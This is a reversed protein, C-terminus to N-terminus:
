MAGMMSLFVVSAISGGDVDYYTEIESGGIASGLKWEQEDIIIGLSNFIRWIANVAFEVMRGTFGYKKSRIGITAFGGLKAEESDKFHVDFEEPKDYTRLLITYQIIDKLPLKDEFGVTEIYCNPIIFHRTVFPFTRHYEYSPKQLSTDTFLVDTLLRQGSQLPPLVSNLDITQLRGTGYLFLLWIMLLFAVETKYLIGEIRIADEGGEQQALFVSGTARFKLIKGSRAVEVTHVHKLPLVGLVCPISGLFQRWSLYGTIGVLYPNISINSMVEIMVQTPNRIKDTQKKLELEIALKELKREFPSGLKEVLLNYMRYVNFKKDALALEQIKSLKLVYQNLLTYDFVDKMKSVAKVVNEKIYFNRISNLFDQVEKNTWKILMNNIRVEKGEGTFEKVKRINGTKHDIVNGFLIQFLALKIDKLSGGHFGLNRFFPTLNKWFSELKINSAGAESM